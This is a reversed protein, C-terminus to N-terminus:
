REEPGGSQTLATYIRNQDGSFLAAQDEASLEADNAAKRPDSVFASLAELDTALRAMYSKLTM